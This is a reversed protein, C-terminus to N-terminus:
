RVSHFDGPVTRFAGARRTSDGWSLVVKSCSDRDASGGQVPTWTERGGNPAPAGAPLWCARPGPLPVRPAGIAVAGATPLSVPADRLLVIDRTRVRPVGPDTLVLWRGPHHRVLEFASQLVVRATWVGCIQVVCDNISVAWRRGSARSSEPARPLRDQELAAATRRQPTPSRRYAQPDAASCRSSLFCTQPPHTIADALLPSASSCPQTSRELPSRSMTTRRRGELHRPCAGGTACSPTGSCSPPGSM